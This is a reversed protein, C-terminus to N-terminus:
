LSQQSATAVLSIVQSIFFDSLILSIIWAASRGVEILWSLQHHAALHDALHDALHAAQHHAARGVLVVVGVVVVLVLLRCRVASGNWWRM